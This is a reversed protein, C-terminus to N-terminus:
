LFRKCWNDFRDLSAQGFKELKARAQEPTRERDLHTKSFFKDAFCILEEELTQPSFDQLPLPLNGEAIASATLGTGTHRECVRAYMELRRNDEPDDGKLARLMEAGLLGHKIYPETGFCFIAPADVRLVGIDHLLAAEELLVKDVSLEPHREALRLALDAVARSHQYVIQYLPNESSIYHQLIEIPSM